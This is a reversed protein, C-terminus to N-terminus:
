LLGESRLFSTCETTIQGQKIGFEQGTLYGNDIIFDENNIYHDYHSNVITLEWEWPTQDKQLRRILRERNWLSPQTSNLYTQRNKQRIWGEPSGFTYGARYNKEFNWVIPDCEIFRMNDLCKDIRKQDVPKRIFYDDLMLIIYDDSIQELSERFRKTWIPSNITITKCHDCENSETVLYTPYPCDRWYKKKLLFFWDWYKSYADCSLVVVSVSM